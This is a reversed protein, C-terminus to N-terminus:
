LLGSGTATGATFYEEQLVLGAHGIMMLIAGYIVSKRYGFYRDALMGGLLPYVYVLASYNGYITFAGNDTFHFRQTLYFILLARVGYFSFREWMETLFLVYLGKPHGLLTRSDELARDNVAGRTTM